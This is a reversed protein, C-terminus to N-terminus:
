AQVNEEALDARLQELFKAAPKSFVQYRKWVVSMHARVTPVLPRFCLASDGSVNIIKDLCLMYGLGDEVMLSGNYVLSYTAVVNQSVPVGALTGADQYGGRNAILPKGRMDEITLTEKQALPDDRRMVIGWTDYIPLPQAVYRNTDIPGFLLGFDILGKDLKETVDVTDGSFIHYHIDPYQKQISTAARTLYHVAYTEGAGIYIEGTLAENSAALEGTTKDVLELIESARKRLLLGDETLTIQRKGRIFLQKGVESELEMLQRSLTPQTLHLSEAAASISEEHALALFYRLVRLEM